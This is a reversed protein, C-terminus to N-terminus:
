GLAIRLSDTALVLQNSRGIRNYRANAVLYLGERFRSEKGFRQVARQIVYEGTNLSDLSMSAVFYQAFIEAAISQREEFRALAPMADEYEGVFRTLALRLRDDGILAGEGTQALAKATSTRLKPTVQSLWRVPYWAKLSDLPLSRPSNLAAFIASDVRATRIESGLVRRLEASDAAVDTRLQRLYIEERASDKRHDYLATAFLAALVGVFTVLLDRIFTSGAARGVNRLYKM